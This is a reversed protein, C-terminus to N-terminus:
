STMTQSAPIVVKPGLHTDSLFIYSPHSFKPGLIRLNNQFVVNYM